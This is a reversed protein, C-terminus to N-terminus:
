GTANQMTQFHLKSLKRWLTTPHIGLLKAAKRKEGNVMSLVRQIHILEVMELSLSNYSSRQKASSILSPHLDEPKITSDSSVVVAREMANQLERVNGPWPYQQLIDTTEPSIRDIQKSVALAFQKAFHCALAPIDEVRARLPPMEIQVVNLRYYLDSRFAGDDVAQDLSINSAAIIRFDTSVTKESGVRLVEKEQVARLLKIQASPSLLHVEDLFLTGGDAQELYGRRVGKADTFSGKEHGFLESEIVSDALAGCNIAIFPKKKRDSLKHISQAVLEKGSGSEGTLLVASPTKAVQHIMRFVSKIAQSSGIIEDVRFGSDVIKRLRQNEKKLNEREQSIKAIFQANEMAMGLPATLQRLVTLGIQDLNYKAHTIVCLVGVVRDGSMVPLGAYFDMGELQVSKRSVRYDVSANEMIVIEDGSAAIKGCLCEGVKVPNETLDQCTRESLNTYALPLLLGASDIKYFVGADARMFSLVETLGRSAMEKLDTKSRILNILHYLAELARIRDGSALKEFPDKDCM